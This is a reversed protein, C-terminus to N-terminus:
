EAALMADVPVRITVYGRLGSGRVNGKQCACHPCHGDLTSRGDAPSAGTYRSTLRAEHNNTSPAAHVPNCSSHILRPGSTVGDAPPYKGENDLRDNPFPQQEFSAVSLPSAPSPLNYTNLSRPTAMHALSHDRLDAAVSSSSPSRTASRRGQPALSISAANSSPGRLASRAPLGQGPTSSTRNNQPRTPSSLRQSTLNDMLVDFNGATDRDGRITSNRTQPRLHFNTSVQSLPHHELPRGLQQRSQHRHHQNDDITKQQPGLLVHEGPPQVQCEAIQPRGHDFRLDSGQHETSIPSVFTPISVDEDPTAPMYSEPMTLSISDQIRQPGSSVPFQQEHSCHEAAPSEALDSVSDSSLFMNFADDIQNSLPQDLMM